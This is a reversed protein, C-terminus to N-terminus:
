VFACYNALKGGYKQFCYLVYYTYRECMWQEKYLLCTLIHLSMEMYYIVKLMCLLLSFFVPFFNTIRTFSNNKITYLRNWPSFTKKKLWSHPLYKQLMVNLVLSLIVNNHYKFYTICHLKTSLYWCQLTFKQGKLNSSSHLLNCWYTPQYRTVLHCHTVVSFVKKKFIM